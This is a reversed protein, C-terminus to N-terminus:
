RGRKQCHGSDFPVKTRESGGEKTARDTRRQRRHLPVVPETKITAMEAM